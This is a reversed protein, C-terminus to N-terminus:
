LWRDLTCARVPVGTTTTTPSEPSTDDKGEAMSEKATQRVRRHARVEDKLSDSLPIVEGRMSAFVHAALERTSGDSMGSMSDDVTFEVWEAFKCRRWKVKTQGLPAFTMDVYSYGEAKGVEKFIRLADTM